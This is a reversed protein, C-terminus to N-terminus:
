PEEVLTIRSESSLISALDAKLKNLAPATDPKNFLRKLLPVEAEVFCLWVINEKKPLPDGEKVNIDEMM